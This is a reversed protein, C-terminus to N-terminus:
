YCIEVDEPRIAGSWAEEPIDQSNKPRQEEM